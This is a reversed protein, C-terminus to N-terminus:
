DYLNHKYNQPISKYRKYARASQWWFVIWVVTLIGLVWLFSQLSSLASGLLMIASTIVIGKSFSDNFAYKLFAIFKTNM